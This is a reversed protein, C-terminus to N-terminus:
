TAETSNQLADLSKLETFSKSVGLVCRLGGTGERRKMRVNLARMPKTVALPFKKDDKPPDWIVRDSGEPPLLDFGMVMSATLALIELQAFHRGPCLSQGGGFARYAAPHVQSSKSEPVSGDANTKHGFQHYLFRHPNFENVDPGWIDPNQHLAGGAIQVIMGKKLLYTDAIVTDEVVYRGTTLPAILRMTERYVSNLLPCADRLANAYIIGSTVMANSRIETRIEDLLEARSFINNILWFSTISANVGVGVCMGVELRAQQPISIGEDAHAKQRLQLMKYAGKIRGAELYETFGETCRELGYYADRATLQPLVGLMLLVLGGEWKWFEEVLESHLNFPNEPGYFSYMSAVFVERTLFHYLDVQQGDKITDFFDNFHQLQTDGIEDLKDPKLLPEIYDHIVRVNMRIRKEEDAKADRLITTTRKDLRVMRPIVETVLRDFQLTKSARQVHSALAPSAVVYSRGNLIPLTFVPNRSRASLDALYMPGGRMMGVLHGVFPIPSSVVPPERPDIKPRALAFLFAGCVVALGIAIVLDLTTAM